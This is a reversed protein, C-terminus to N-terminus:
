SRLRPASQPLSPPQVGLARPVVDGLGSALTWQAALEEITHALIFDKETVQDGAEHTRLRFTLTAWVNYTEPHHHQREAEFALRVLFAIADPHSRFQLERTLANGRYSWAPLRQLKLRIQEENMVQVM